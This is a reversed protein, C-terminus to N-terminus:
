VDYRFVTIVAPKRWHIFLHGKLPMCVSIDDASSSRSVVNDSTDQRSEDARSSLLCPSVPTFDIPFYCSTVEFMEETFSGLFASPFLSCSGTYFRVSVTAWTHERVSNMVGSSSTKLSRSPWSSTVLIGREMWRNYLGLCLTQAWVKWNQRCLLLTEVVVWNRIVLSCELTKVFTICM